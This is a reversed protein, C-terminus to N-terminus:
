YEEKKIIYGGILNGIVIALFMLWAYWNGIQMFLYFSDAVCHNFGALLFTMVCLISIYLPTRKYTAITMLIGCFAGSLLLQLFNADMFKTRSLAAMKDMLEYNHAVTLFLMSFFSAAFAGLMNCALVKCWTKFNITEGLHQTLGTTLPLEAMRIYMLGMAFCCYGIIPQAILNSVLCGLGILIGAIFANYWM